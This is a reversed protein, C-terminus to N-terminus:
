QAIEAIAAIERGFCGKAELLKIQERLHPTIKMGRIGSPHFFHISEAENCEFPGEHRATFFYGISYDNAEDMIYSGEFKLEADIGLEEKLERRAAEWITEGVAVFGACCANWHSPFFHRDNKRLELLLEGESNQILIQVCKRLLRKEFVEGYPRVELTRGSEDVVEIFNKFLENRLSPM